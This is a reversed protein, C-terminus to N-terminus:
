LLYGPKPTLMDRVQETLSPLPRSLTQPLDQYQAHRKAITEHSMGMEVTQKAVQPGLAGSRMLAQCNILFQQTAADLNQQQLWAQYEAPTLQQLQVDQGTVTRVAKILETYTHFVGTLEYSSKLEDEPNSLLNAAAQAYYSEAAWGISQKGATTVIPDKQQLAAQLAPFENNLYWNNRLFSHPLNTQNIFQETALHDAALPNQCRDAHFFSTYGLWHVHNQVAAQVVNKHQTIRPVAENPHSSILLVRDVDTLAAQLSAPDGYDGQRIDLYAPYLQHAKDLNRAIIVIDRFPVRTLLHNVVLQGFRGTAATVAYKM